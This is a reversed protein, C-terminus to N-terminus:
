GGKQWNATRTMQGWGGGTGTVWQWLGQLRWLTALQRYGFNELVAAAALKLLDGREHYVHYAVEELLLASMSLLTGLSVALLMFTWFAAASIMGSVFGLTMLVYGGIEILPSLWEFAIM